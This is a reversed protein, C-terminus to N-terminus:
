AGDGHSGRALLAVLLARGDAVFELATAHVARAKDEDYVHSTLNRQYRYSLWREPQAVLGREAGERMLEAFSMRDADGPNPLEQELQRKLMKWSLEYCYEFRQIVADRVEEDGPERLSRETARGLSALARELSSFDLTM